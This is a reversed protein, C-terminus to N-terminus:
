LKAKTDKSIFQKQPRELNDTQFVRGGGGMGGKGGGWENM